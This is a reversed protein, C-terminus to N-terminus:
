LRNVRYSEGGVSRTVTIYDKHVYTVRSPAWEADYDDEDSDLGNAIEVEKAAAADSRLRSAGRTGEVKAADKTSKAKDHIEKRAVKVARSNIWERVQVFSQHEEQGARAAGGSAAVPLPDASM